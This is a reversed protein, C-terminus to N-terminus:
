TSAMKDYDWSESTNFHRNIDIGKSTMPQYTPITIQSIPRVVRREECISDKRTSPQALLLAVVTRVEEGFAQTSQSAYSRCDDAMKHWQHVPQNRWSPWSEAIDTPSAPNIQRGRRGDGVLDMQMEGPGCVAPCGLAMGELIARGFGEVFSPLVGRRGM